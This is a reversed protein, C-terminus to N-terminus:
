DTPETVKLVRSYTGTIVIGWFSCTDHTSQPRPWHLIVKVKELSAHIRAKNVEFGLYDARYKLFERKHLRGFLKDRHVKDLAVWLHDWRGEASSSYILM